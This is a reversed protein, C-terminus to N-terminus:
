WQLRRLRWQWRLIEFTLSQTFLVFKYVNENKGAARKEFIWFLKYTAISQSEKALHWKRRPAFYPRCNKEREERVRLAKRELVAYDKPAHPHMSENLKLDGCCRTNCFMQFFLDFKVMLIWNEYLVESKLIQFYCQGDLKQDQPFLVRTEVSVFVHKYNKVFHFTIMM